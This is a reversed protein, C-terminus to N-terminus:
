KPARLFHDTETRGKGSAYRIHAHSEQNDVILMEDTGITRLVLYIHDPIGNGNDDKTVGVDGAHQKGVPVRQWHRSELVNALVGASVITGITIGAEVFLSSLFAACGDHPFEPLHARAVSRAKEIGIKTLALDVATQVRPNM